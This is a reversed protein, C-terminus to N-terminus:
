KLKKIEKEVKKTVEQEKYKDKLEKYEPNEELWEQKDESSKYDSKLKKFKKENELSEQEEKSLNEIVYQKKIANQKSGKEDSKAYPFNKKYDNFLKQARAVKEAYEMFPMDSYYEDAFAKRQSAPLNIVFMFDVLDPNGTRIAHEVGIYINEFTEVNVGGFKSLKLAINKITNLNMGEDIADTIVTQAEKLFGMVDYERGQALSAAYQGFSTGAVLSLAMSLMLQGKAEDDLYPEDDGGGGFLSSILPSTIGVVGRGGLYWLGPLITFAVMMKRTGRLVSDALKKKAEAKDMGSEIDKQYVRKARMIELFGENGMRQYGVNSNQYNMLSKIVVNRSKQIPSVFEERSSQQTENFAIEANYQAVNKAEEESLGNKIAKNYEFDYVARAGAACTLADVYKNPTMGWEGFKEIGKAIANDFTEESLGTLGIDGSEVRQNFAPLNDKAWKYNGPWNLMYKGLYAQYKLNGSYAMFAPYSLIQKLATNLRFGINTGAWMKNLKAFLDNVSNSEDRNNYARVAVEASKIFKDYLGKSNAELYNRFAKSSYLFNLDQRLKAMANWSEMDSGYKYLLDFANQETNIRSKNITRKIINGTVTSPMGSYTEGMEGKAQVDEGVVKFPFYHERKAMSTGFLEIHTKNYKENRLMPLFDDTVWEGFKIYNEGILDEIDSISQETWGDAILKSRGDDQRWTLWVYLAEGKSISIPYLDGAKHHKGDYMAQKRVKDNYKKGSDKIVKEASKGFIEKIKEEIANNYATLGEHLRNNAALAGEESKMFRNYLEGEGIRHNRDIFKLMFNFSNLPATLFDTFGKLWSNDYWKEFKEKATLDSNLPKIGKDKVAEIGMRVIEIRRAALAEKRMALRSKGEKIIESLENTVENMLKILEEQAIVYNDEIMNVEALLMKRDAGKLSYADRRKQIADVLIQELQAQSERIEALKERLPISDYEDQMEITWVGKGEIHDDMAAELEERRQKLTEKTELINNKLLEEKEKELEKKKEKLKEQQQKLISRGQKDDEPLDNIEKGFRMIESRVSSLEGDISTVILDKFTTRISDFLRRTSEDVVIGKAVGRNTEGQLKTKILKDMKAAANDIVASNIVQEIFQLPKRLETATSASNVLRIIQAIRTNGLSEGAEKTLRGNVFSVIARQKTEWEEKNGARLTNVQKKLDRLEDKLDRREEKLDRIENQLEKKTNPKSEKVSFRTGGGDGDPTDDPNFENWLKNALDKKAKWYESQKETFADMGEQNLPFDNMNPKMAEVERSAKDIEKKNEAYYDAYEPEEWGYFTTKNGYMSTHHWESDDIIGAEVLINFAKDTVGYEKKFDTKPYRGEKRAQEARKSMSYGVYGSNGGYVRFRTPSDEYEGVGLRYKKDVDEAVDLISNRNLPKRSRWLLYKVDNPTLELEVGVKRLADRLVSVVKDLLTPEEVKSLYEDVAVAVDAGYNKVANIAVDTRESEPLAYFIDLMAIDYNTNGIVGRLGMDAVKDFLGKLRAAEEESRRRSEKEKRGSREEEADAVRQVDSNRMSYRGSRGSTESTRTSRESEYNYGKQKLIDLLENKGEESLHAFVDEFEGNVMKNSVIYVFFEEERESEPYKNSLKKWKDFKEDNIASQYFNAVLDKHLDNNLANHLNEHFLAKELKKPKMRDAFIIIENSLKSHTASAKKDDMWNILDQAEVGDLGIWKSADEDKTRESLINVPSSNYKNTFEDIGSQLKNLKRGNTRFRIDPNEADFTGVNDTASKIQTPEFAVYEQDENNLGDYGQSVLYERAKVGAGNQGQFMKLAKYGKNENAPNKINLYFARVNSGYGRADDDWPSFFMGQVDMNARGRTKDFVTFDEESGHYVVLPEGNEDVVKSANAADNEWDGFWKKFADTRVQAWQKENLNTPNGNPAKMYTGDAKAKDIIAKEESTFRFRTEGSIGVIEKDLEQSNHILEKIKYVSKPETTIGGVEESANLPQVVSGKEKHMSVNYLSLEDLVVGKNELEKVVLRASYQRGNVNIPVYFINVSHTHGIEDQAVPISGIKVANSIVKGIAAFITFTDKNNHLSTHKVSNRTVKVNIKQDLNPFSIGKAPIYEFAEERNTPLKQEETDKIVVNDIEKEAIRFRSGLCIAEKVAEYVEDNPLEEKVGKVYNDLIQKNFENDFIPKVAEQPLIKGNKDFLKFDILFKHYGPTYLFRGDKARNLFRHFRPIYDRKNCEELFRETFQKATKIPNGEAEAPNLVDTYINLGHKPANKMKQNGNEDTEIVKDLQENKYNTWTDIGKGKLIKKAQSTHFGIIYDVFPDAMALRAQEDNIAVLINGVSKSNTSDFFNPDNVNIGEVTDFLLRKGNIVNPSVAEGEKPVYNEDVYGEGKAILSRNIKAGTDKVAKAFEPVKTYGQVKIGKAACDTLVQVLDILHHAEFDSFSFIRLGGNNNISEVKKKNYKLIERNYASYAQFLRGSQMGRANNYEIFAQAVAPHTKRLEKMGDLTIIDFLNPVYKDGSEKLKDLAKVQNENLEVDKGEVADIFGQGIEGLLQRRDEVFCLACAVDEGMEKMTNRITNLTEADFLTNPFEKQLRQYINTFPLRKKCINSFEVTGQPYDSNNWISPVSEDAELDLLGVNDENLIVSALSEEAKLWQKVTKESRGTVEMLDKIAQEREKGKLVDKVAFRIDGKEADVEGVNEELREVARMRNKEGEVNEAKGSKLNAYSMKILTSIDANTLQSKSLIGGLTKDFAERFLQVIRDWITQEEPSLNENESLEAIYEDAAARQQEVGKMDKVIPYVKTYFDKKDQPMMEWVKDCLENFREEGLMEKLGKHAVVEHIFTKDVESLDVLDPLFFYVEGNTIWGPAVKRAKHAAEIEARIKATPADEISEILHVQLGLAKAWENIRERLPIRRQEEATIEQQNAHAAESEEAIRGSIPESEQQEEIGGTNDSQEESLVTSNGSTINGEAQGNEINNLSQEFKAQEEAFIAMIEEPREEIFPNEVEAAEHQLVYDELTTHYNQMVAGEIENRLGESEKQFQYERNNKIYGTIDGWSSVSQLFSILADRGANADTQDFFNTGAERDMQMLLEGAREISVGGNEKKRFMKMFKQREKEGYGTEKKYSSSELTINGNALQQAIFEDVSMPEESLETEVKPNLMAEREAQAKKVDADMEAWFDAEKKISEYAAQAKDFAAQAKAERGIAANDLNEQAKNLAEQAKVLDEAYAKATVGIKHPMKEGYKNGLEKFTNDKGYSVFDISGDEKTPIVPAQPQANEVVLGSEAENQTSVGEVSGEQVSEPMVANDSNEATKAQQQAAEEAEIQATMSDKYTDLHIAGLQQAQMILANTKHENGKAKEYEETPVVFPNGEADVGVITVLEGNNDFSTGVTPEPINPHWRSEAEAQAEANHRVVQENLSKVKDAPMQILTDAYYETPRVWIKQDSGEEQVRLYEEGNVIKVGFVNAPVRVEEGKDNFRKLQVQGYLGTELDTAADITANDAAVKDETEAETVENIANNKAVEYAYEIEARKEEPTLNKDAMTIKIFERIDKNESLKGMRQLEELKAKQEESMTAKVRNINRRSIYREKAMGGLGIAGFVVSTPALGLFTDINNDLDLAEDMSMEGLAVNAFNNYVEEFYEEPLGHFQAKEAVEKLTPNNKIERYWEAPKSNKLRMFFGNVGEPLVDGVENALKNFPSWKGFANFIMESQNEITRTVFSKAFAEGLGVEGKKVVSLNGNGDFSYDYDENLRRETESMVSPMGSTLTMGSAAVADGILRGGFKAANSSAAGIGRKIASTLMKKAVAKGAGSLPNLIFDLMFPLSEGTVKGAKYGRGLDKDYHYHTAINNIYADLLLQEDKTLEKGNALKDFANGVSIEKLLNSVGMTWNDVDGATDGVGRFMGGFFNTKGKKSSESLTNNADDLLMQAAYLNSSKASQEENAQQHSKIRASAPMSSSSVYTRVNSLQANENQLLELQKNLEDIKNATEKKQIANVGKNIDIGYRDSIEKNYVEQYPKLENQITESYYQSFLDNIMRNAEDVEAQTKYQKNAYSKYVDSNKFENLYKNTIEDQIQALEGQLQSGRKTLSFKNVANEYVDSIEEEKKPTYQQNINEDEKANLIPELEGKNFSDTIRQQLDLNYQQPNGGETKMFPADELKPFKRKKGEVQERLGLRESSKYPNVADGQASDSPHSEGNNYYHTRFVDYDKAKVRYKKGAAEEHSIADPFEKAFSNIYKDEVDYEQGNFEFIPM